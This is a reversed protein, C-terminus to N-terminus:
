PPIPEMPICAAGAVARQSTSASKAPSSLGACAQNRGSRKGPHFAHCGLMLLLHIDTAFITTPPDRLAKFDNRVTAMFSHRLIVAACTLIAPRPVRKDVQISLTVVRDLDIDSRSRGVKRM